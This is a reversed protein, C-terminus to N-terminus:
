INVWEFEPYIKVNEKIQVHSIGNDQSIYFKAKAKVDEITMGGITIQSGIGNIASSFTIQAIFKNKPSRTTM